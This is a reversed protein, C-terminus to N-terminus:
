NKTVDAWTGVTIDTQGAQAVFLFLRGITEDYWLDGETASAPAADSVTVAPGRPVDDTIDEWFMAGNPDTPSVVGSGTDTQAVIARYLRTEGNVEVSVVDGVAYDDPIFAPAQPTVLIVPDEITVGSLTLNEGDFFIHDEQGGVLLIEQREPLPPDVVDATGERDAFGMFAGSGTWMPDITPVATASDWVLADDINPIGVALSVTSFVSGDVVLNGDIFQGALEWNTGDYQYACSFEGASNATGYTIVAIDGDVPLRSAIPQFEDDRPPVAENGARTEPKTETPREIRWFGAGPAGTEGNLLRRVQFRGSATGTFAM